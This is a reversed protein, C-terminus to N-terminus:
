FELDFEGGIEGASEQAADKLTPTGIEKQIDKVSRGTIFAETYVQVRVTRTAHVKSGLDSGKVHFVLRLPSSVYENQQTVKNPQQHLGVYMRGSASTQNGDVDLVAEVPTYVTKIVREVPKGDRGRRIVTKEETQVPELKKVSVKVEPGFPRKVLKGSRNEVEKVRVLDGAIRRDQAGDVQAMLHSRVTFSGRHQENGFQFWGDETDARALLYMPWLEDEPDHFEISSTYYHPHSPAVVMRPATAAAAKTDDLDDLMDDLQATATSASFLCAPLLLIATEQLRTM